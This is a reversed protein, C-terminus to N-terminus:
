CWGRAMDSRVSAEENDRRATVGESAEEETRGESRGVGDRRVEAKEGRAKEDVGVGRAVSLWTVRPHRLGRDRGVDVGANIPAYWFFPTQALTYVTLGFFGFEATRLTAFTLSEVPLAIM